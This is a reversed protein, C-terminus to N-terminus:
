AESVKAIKRKDKFIKELEEAIEKQHQWVESQAMEDLLMWTSEIEDQQRDILEIVEQLGQVVGAAQDEFNVDMFDILQQLIDKAEDATM